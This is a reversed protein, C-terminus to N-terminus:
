KALLAWAAKREQEWECNCTPHSEHSPADLLRQIMQKLVEVENNSQM